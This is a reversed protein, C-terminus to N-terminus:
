LVALVCNKTDPIPTSKFVTLFVKNKDMKDRNKM